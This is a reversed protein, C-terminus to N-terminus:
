GQRVQRGPGAERGVKDQRVAKAEIGQGSLRSQLAKGTRGHGVRRGQRSRAGRM